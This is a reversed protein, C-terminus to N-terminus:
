QGGKALDIRTVSWRDRVLLATPTTALMMGFRRLEIEISAIGFAGVGRLQKLQSITLQQLQDLTAIGVRELENATRTIISTDRISVSVRPPGWAAISCWTPLTWVISFDRDDIYVKV